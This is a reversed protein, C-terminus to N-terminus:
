TKAQTPSRVKFTSDTQRSQPHVSTRKQNHKKFISSNSSAHSLLNACDSRRAQTMTGSAQMNLTSTVVENNNTQKELPEQLSPVQTNSVPSAVTTTNKPVKQFIVKNNHSTTRESLFEEEKSDQCDM